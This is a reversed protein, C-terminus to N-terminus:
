LKNYVLDVVISIILISFLVIFDYKILFNKDAIRSYQIDAILFIDSIFFMSARDSLSPIYQSYRRFILLVGGCLFSTRFMVGFQKQNHLLLESSSAFIFYEKIAM